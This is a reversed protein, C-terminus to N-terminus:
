FVRRMRRHAIGADLFDGGEAVFGYLEYFGLAHTQANLVVEQRGREAALAVLALLLKAGVGQGRWAPLVAMRGIHGDPLLRGTGIPVGASSEALVHVCDADVGDWELEIPVNQEVVFVTERVGRIKEVDLDWDARRVSFLPHM